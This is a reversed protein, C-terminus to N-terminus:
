LFDLFEEVTMGSDRIQAALLGVKLKIPLIALHGNPMLVAGHSGKGRGKVEVGGARVFARVAQAQGLNRPLKPM